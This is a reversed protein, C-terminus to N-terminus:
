KWNWPLGKKCVVWGLAAGLVGTALCHLLCEM